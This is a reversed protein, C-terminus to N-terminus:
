PFLLSTLSISISSLRHGISIYPNRRPFLILLPLHNCHLLKAYILLVDKQILLGPLIEVSWPILFEDSLQFFAIGEDDAAIETEDPIVAFDLLFDEFLEAVFRLPVYPQLLCLENERM